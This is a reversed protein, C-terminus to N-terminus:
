VKERLIRLAWIIFRAFLLIFYVVALKLIFTVGLLSSYLESIYLQTSNICKSNKLDSEINVARIFEKIRKQILKPPPNYVERLFKKYDPDNRIEPNINIDHIEGNAFELRYKPLAVPVNQLLLIFLYLVVSLGLIILGEKAIIWKIKRKGM